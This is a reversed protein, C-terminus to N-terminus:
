LLDGVSPLLEKQMYAQLDVTSDDLDLSLFKEVVKLCRGTHEETSPQDIRKIAKGARYLESVEVGRHVVAQPLGALTAINAAYSSQCVGERLQYLFVLEDGDVATELTLLSLLPSPPLLDLQLLSHFNTALLIHPCQAPAKKLWHRICSALLALGDVTNTGKGFEDILVLSNGTSNNLAYAMQNLDIMFTSMGLSVSERSHMRTFISDILGIEAEKAPVDSGILAMFVILGVQKLYISKGSSNPGTLIKVKGETESSLLPNPVFVSSCLELLPHRAQTLSLQSHPSLVPSCYGHEQSVQALAMVCDLEAALRQVAYLVGSRQLVAAQLQSMVATEMDRIDCHLDGLMDDLEKTRESRYHLREKEDIAPDVNPKITFRNEALSGEFDVVKSILSAIYFLDDTFATSIEQFLQLSQPLSRVTDRICVASYVTKYLCQWDSIKTHSLAMRHLLTPISRINRLCGQLTHLVDSNRPSTFFRVVEQRRSLVTLDRTPRLFWQRLLKSGFKCRCRNLIGYLSLGEKEGSQLKYVSPHLESKFIQLVSYTDRDVHVVDKLAYIQFLFIPVGVSRDELEVGVRRRDLCKLLAGVSRLMLTCDFPLCSSLYPIREKETISPPLSPLHASLLRQKSVALGFDASPYLVIEPKYDPSEGIAKIFQAMCREQKASTILVSPCVEQVVRDLLKLDYNDVTDPMYHLTCDRSDYFSVGLKGNHVLVSLYVESSLEEEDENHSPAVSGADEIRGGHVAMDSVSTHRLLKPTWGRIVYSVTSLITNVEIVGTGECECRASLLGIRPRILMHRYDRREEVETGIDATEKLVASGMISSDVQAAAGKARMDESLKLQADRLQTLQGHSSLLCRQVVAGGQVLLMAEPLQTGPHRNYVQVMPRDLRERSLLDASSVPGASRDRSHQICDVQRQKRHVAQRASASSLTLHQKLSVTESIKKVLGENVLRRASKQRALAEGILSRIKERLSQSQTLGLSSTEMAQKCEPTYPGTPDPKTTFQSATSQGGASHVGSLPLLDLVCSRESACELLLKSCQSLAQLQNLTDRLTGELQAKLECLEKKECDLLADAGDRVTEAPPPRLVRVEMSKQNVVLDKRLSRLMRELYGRERELKIGEQGVKCAQRRLQGEVRRVERMYEAAVKVSAEACHERLCPPPFPAVLPASSPTFRTTGTTMPRGTHSSQASSDNGSNKVSNKATENEELLVPSNVHSLLGVTCLTHKLATHPATKTLVSQQLEMLLQDRQESDILVQQILEDRKELSERLKNLEGDTEERERQREREAEKTESEKQRLAKQADRLQESLTSVTEVHSAKQTELLTESDKLATTLQTVERCLSASEEERDKLWGALLTEKEKLQYALAGEAGGGSVGQGIVSDSLAQVDRQSSELAEEKEQQQERQVKDRERLEIRLENIIDQNCLLVTNLMNLDRERESAAQRLAEIEREMGQEKAQMESLRSELSQEADTRVTKLTNTLKDILGNSVDTSVGAEVCLQSICAMCDQITKERCHLTDGMTQLLMKEGDILPPMVLEKSQSDECHVAGNANKLQAELTKVRALAQDLQAKLHKIATHMRNVSRERQLPIFDDSLETVTDKTEGDVEEGLDDGDGFSLVRAVATASPGAASGDIGRRIRNLVPIRSGIPSSVPRAVIDKLERLVKELNASPEESWDFPDNGDLLDLSQISDAHSPGPLSICSSGPSMTNSSVSQARSWELPMSQSKDRSLPLPSFSRFPLHRPVGCVSEYDSDSVRLANCGECNKGERCKKGTRRYYPCSDWRESWCEFESLAMNNRLLERYPDGVGAQTGGGEGDEEESSGEWLNQDQPNHERYVSCLWKRIKNREQSMKQLREESLVRVRAIVTDFKFVRELVSVCKGCLFEGRKSGRPVTHGLIHMLIALLDVGKSSSPLSPSKSLSHASGLSLTSGVPSSSASNSLTGKFHFNNPTQPQAGKRQGGFLWRRQNGHLAGGCVRCGKSRTTMTAKVNQDKMEVIDENEDYFGFYSSQWPTIVGDDPGGILVLKKINLFNKKWDAASPNLRENNLVALFDNGKVYKDMHHPDKWYNCISVNRGLYHYCFQYVHKKLFKPFIHKLYDTDGYQGGQPSSLSIFSHINHDPLTSVIGRCVLGGQSFCILHVGDVANQLIPLVAQKFGQVQEWMPKLSFRYNFLDIVTVNTGPHSKNIFRTLDLLEKPGDFLGHVIIVPKYGAVQGALFVGLLMHLWASFRNRRSERFNFISM